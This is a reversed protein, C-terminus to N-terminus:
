VGGRIGADNCGGDEVEVERELSVGVCFSQVLIEKHSASRTLDALLM